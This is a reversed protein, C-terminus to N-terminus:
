RVVRSDGNELLDGLQDRLMTDLRDEVETAVDEPSQGPAANVTIGGLDVNVRNGGSNHVNHVTNQPAHAAQAAETLDDVARFPEPAAPATVPAEVPELALAEPFPIPEAAAVALETDRLAELERLLAADVAAAVDVTPLAPIEPAPVDATVDPVEATVVPEAPTAELARTALHAPLEEGRMVVGLLRLERVLATRLDWVAEVVDVNRVEVREPPPVRAQKEDETVTGDGGEGAEATGVMAALEDPTMGEVGEPVAEGRELASLSAIVQARRRHAEVMDERDMDTMFGRARAAGLRQVGMARKEAETMPRTGRQLQADIDILERRLQQMLAHKQQETLEMGTVDGGFDIAYSAQMHQLMEEARSLEDDVADGAAQRWQLMEVEIEQREIGLRRRRKERGEESFFESVKDIAGQIAAGVKDWHTVLLLLGTIAAGIWTSMSLGKIATGLGKLKGTMLQVPGVPMTRLNLLGMYLPNIGAAAIRLAFGLGILAPGLLIAKSIVMQIPGPLGSLFRTARTIAQAWGTLTETIGAEGLAIKLGEIASKMEKLAGPLGAMMQDAMRDATGAAGELTHIMNELFDVNTALTKSYNVIKQGFAKVFAKQTEFTTQDAVSLEKALALIDGTAAARQLADTDIGVGALGELQDESM